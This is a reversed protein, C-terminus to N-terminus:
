VWGFASLRDSRDAKDPDIFVRHESDVWAGLVVLYDPIPATTGWHLTWEKNAPVLISPTGELVANWKAAEIDRRGEQPIAEENIWVKAARSRLSQEVDESTFEGIGRRVIDALPGLLLTDFLLETASDGQRADLYFQARYGVTSNFFLDLIKHTGIDDGGTPALRLSVRKCGHMRLLPSKEAPEIHCDRPECKACLLRIIQKFPPPDSLYTVRWEEVHHTFRWPANPVREAEIM